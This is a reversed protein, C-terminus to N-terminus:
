KSYSIEGPNWSSETNSCIYLICWLASKLNDLSTGSSGPFSLGLFAPTLSFVLM